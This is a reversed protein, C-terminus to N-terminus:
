SSTLTNNDDEPHNLVGNPLSKIFICKIHLCNFEELMGMGDYM